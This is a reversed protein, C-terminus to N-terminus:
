KAAVDVKSHGELVPHNPLLIRRLLIAGFILGLGVIALRGPEPVM